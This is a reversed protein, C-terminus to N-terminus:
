EEVKLKNELVKIGERIAINLIVYKYASYKKAMTELSKLVPERFAVSHKSTPGIQGLEITSYNKDEFDIIAANIIKSVSCDNFQLALKELKEFLEDEVNVTRQLLSERIVFNDLMGM